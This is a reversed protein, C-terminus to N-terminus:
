VGRNAFQGEVMEVTGARGDVRVQDGTRLRHTADGTNIVCPIGLERAAIAGHSLVGGIDIVLAGAVLFLTVWAPNTTECVLIEGPEIQEAVPDTVVRVRGEVVGPTVGIGRVVHGDSTAMEAPEPCPPGVWYDPLRVQRCDAYFSKREDVADRLDAGYTMRVLESRTLFFVDGPDGITGRQALLSGAARACARAVDIAQAFGTKGVERLPVLRSAAHCAARAAARKAAPLRALLRAETEIRAAVQVAQRHRPDQDAPLDRYVPLLTIIPGRDERWSPMSVDGAAPGHFGYRLLFADLALEDHAVRWLETLLKTEEMGGYGTVLDAQAGDMGAASALSGIREFCSQALMSVLGQDHVISAFRHCAEDFNGLVEVLDGGPNAVTARWWPENAQRQATLQRTTRWVALPARVATIPYRARRPRNPASTRTRGFIQEEFSDGSSGPIRDALDRFRTINGAIRGHFAGMFRGDVSPSVVADRRAVTGLDASMRVLSAESADLWFTLSLPTQVGPIAESFNVTTWVTDPGSQMHLPNPPAVTKM